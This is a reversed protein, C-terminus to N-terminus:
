TIKSTTCERFFITHIQFVETTFLSRRREDDNDILSHTLALSFKGTYLPDINYLLHFQLQKNNQPQAVLVVFIFQNRPHTISRKIIILLESRKNTFVRTQKVLVFERQNEYLKWMLKRPMQFIIKIAFTALINQMECHRFANM